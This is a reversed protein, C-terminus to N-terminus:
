PAGRAPGREAHPRGRRSPQAHARGRGACPRAQAGHAGRRSGRPAALTGAVLPGLGRGASDLEPAPAPVFRDRDRAEGACTGAATHGIRFVPEGRRALERQVHAAEDAEVILVMGVGMNLTRYAEDEELEGGRVILQFLGPPTWTSRDIVADCAGLVRNVNGPL